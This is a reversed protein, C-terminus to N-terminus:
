KKDTLLYVNMEGKGKVNITGRHTFVFDDKLLNYATESVQIENDIGHSEMRAATNVTDGWLDYSFKKKGIVGAVVPGSHIGIRVALRSGSSLKFKSVIAKMELAFEALSHAHLPHSEPIGAAVMYADGITKIKEVRYKEVLDDFRSFISNLIGVLKDPKVREALPTFGVIDSFLVSASDFADAITDPSEKLREAIPVPLVNLLLSEAKEQEAELRDENRNLEISIYVLILALAMVFSVKVTVLLLQQMVPSDPYWPGKAPLLFDVVLFVAFSVVVTIYMPLKQKKNYIFMACIGVLQMYLQIGFETGLIYSQVPIVVLATWNFLLRASLYMRMKNLLLVLSYSLLIFGHTFVIYWSGDYQYVLSLVIFPIVVGLLTVLVLTNLLVIFKRERRSTEPDVGLHIVTQFIKKIM